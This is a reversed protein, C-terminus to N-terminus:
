MAAAGSFTQSASVELANVPCYKKPRLTSDSQFRPEGHSKRM